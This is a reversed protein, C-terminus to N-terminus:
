YLYKIFKSCLDFYNKLIEALCTFKRERFLYELSEFYFKWLM